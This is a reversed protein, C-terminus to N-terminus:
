LVYSGKPIYFKEDQNIIHLEPFVKYSSEWEAFKEMIHEALEVNDKELVVYIDAIKQTFCVEMVSKLNKIKNLTDYFEFMIVPIEDRTVCKDLLEVPKTTM